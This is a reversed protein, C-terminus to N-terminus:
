CNREQIFEAQTDKITQSALQTKM